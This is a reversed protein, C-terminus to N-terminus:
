LPIRERDGRISAEIRGCDGNGGTKSRAEEHRPLYPLSVWLSKSWWQNAMECRRGSGGGASRQWPQKILRISFAKFSEFIALPDM